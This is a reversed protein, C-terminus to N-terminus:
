IGKELVWTKIKMWEKFGIPWCYTSRPTPCAGQPHMEEEQPKGQVPHIGRSQSAPSAPKLVVAFVTGRIAHM